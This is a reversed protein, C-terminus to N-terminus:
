KGKKKEKQIDIIKKALLLKKAEAIEKDDEADSKFYEDLLWNLLLSNGRIGKLWFNHPDLLFTTRRNDAM